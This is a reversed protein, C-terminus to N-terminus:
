IIVMVKNKKHEQKRDGDCHGDSCQGHGGKEGLHYKRDVHGCLHAGVEADLPEDVLNTRSQVKTQQAAAEEEEEGREQLAIAFRNCFPNCLSQLLSQLAIAFRNSLSQLAIAFHNCLSQLAIAFRNSISQLAIAFRNCLLQLAIAFCNCLSQFAIAFCNFLSQL